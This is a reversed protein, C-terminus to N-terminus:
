LHENQKLRNLLEMAKKLTARKEEESPHGHKWSQLGLSGVGTLKHKISKADSAKTRACMTSVTDNFHKVSKLMNELKEIEDRLAQTRRGRQELEERPEGSEAADVRKGKGRGKQRKKAGRSLPGSEASQEGPKAASSSAASEAPQEENTEQTDGAGTFRKRGRRDQPVASMSQIRKSGREQASALVEQICATVVGSLYM